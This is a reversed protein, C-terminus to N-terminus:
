TRRFHERSDNRDDRSEAVVTTAIMERSRLYQELDDAFGTAEVILRYRTEEIRMNSFHVALIASLAIGGGAIAALILRHGLRPQFSGM